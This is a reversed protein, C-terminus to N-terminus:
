LQNAPDQALHHPRLPSFSLCGHPVLFLFYLYVHIFLPLKLPLLSEHLFCSSTISLVPHHPHAEPSAQFPHLLWGHPEKRSKNSGINCMACTLELRIGRIFLIETKFPLAGFVSFLKM